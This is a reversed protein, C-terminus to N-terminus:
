RPFLLLGAAVLFTGGLPLLSLAAFWRLWSRHALVPVCLALAVVSVGVAGFVIARPHEFLAGRGAWRHAAYLLAASALSLPVVGAFAVRVLRRGRIAEAM